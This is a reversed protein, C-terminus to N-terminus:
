PHSEKRLLQVIADTKLVKGASVVREDVMLAPMQMVGCTAITQLDTIYEVETHLNLQRVAAQTAELLAHCSKCGSGLVRISRFSDPSISEMSTKKHFGFLAM